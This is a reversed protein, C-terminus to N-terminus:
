RGAAKKDYATMWHVLEDFLEKADVDLVDVEADAIADCVREVTYLVFLLQHRKMRPLGQAARLDSLFSMQLQRQELRVAQVESDTSVLARLSRRFGAWRVHHDLVSRLRQRTVTQPSASESKSTRLAAWEAIVWERYVELFIERKNEFHKYFTAPAYGAARAIKNTDTGLYGETNFLDRAARLLRQRTSVPADATEGTREVSDMVQAGVRRSGLTCSTINIDSM